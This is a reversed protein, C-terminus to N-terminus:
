KKSAAILAEIEDLRARLDKVESADAVTKFTNAMKAAESPTAEGTALADAISDPHVSELAVVRESPLYRDLVYQAARLSGQSLQAKLVAMAESTLDGLAALVSANLKHTAGRPKGSNGAAFRGMTDRGEVTNARVTETM